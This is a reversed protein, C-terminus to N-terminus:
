EIVEDATALLTPSLNLGLRKATKLNFKLQYKTPQQFPLDGPREGRLIRDVYSASRRFVDKRDASYSALGGIRVFIDDTYIAPIRYRGVIPVVSERLAQVTLDPPFFVASNPREALGAAAREIDQIDHIPISVSELALAKAALEFERKFTATSRNEPNHINAVRITMPAIQKLADLMKGFISLELFTFGTINGGPRALSQVWGTGVPDVAGPVVIPVSRSIQLLVPIVRGGIAVVVDPNSQLIGAADARVREMNDATWREDFQVSKGEIWGLRALELRLALVRSEFEEDGKPYPILIGVRRIRDPQQARAVVPWTAAGGVLTIFERRM